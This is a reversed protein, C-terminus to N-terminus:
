RAVSLGKASFSDYELLKCQVSLLENKSGEPSSIMDALTQPTFVNEVSNIYELDAGIMINPTIFYGLSPIINITTISEDGTLEDGSISSFSANGHLIMSGKDTPNEAAFAATALIFVATIILLKKM